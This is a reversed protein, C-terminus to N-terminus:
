KLLERIALEKEIEERLNVRSDYPDSLSRRVGDCLDWAEEETMGRDKLTEMTEEIDWLTIILGFDWPGFSVGIFFSHHWINWEQFEIFPGFHVAGGWKTSHWEVKM